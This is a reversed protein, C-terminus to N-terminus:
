VAPHILAIQSDTLASHIIAVGQMTIGNALGGAIQAWGVKWWGSYNAAGSTNSEAVKVGDIFIATTQGAGMRAVLTHPLGDRFTATTLLNFVFGPSNYLGIRGQADLYLERDYSFTNAASPTNSFSFFGGVATATATFRCILTYAAPATIQSSLAIAGSNFRVSSGIGGSLLSVQQQLYSGSYTGVIGGASNRANTNTDELPLYVWPSFDQLIASYTSVPMAIVQRNRLTQLIEVIKVRLAASDAGVAPDSISPLPPPTTTNGTRRIPPM